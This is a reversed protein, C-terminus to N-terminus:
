LPRPKAPLKAVIKIETIGKDPILRTIEVATWAPFPSKVYRNKVAIIGPGPPMIVMADHRAGGYAALPPTL